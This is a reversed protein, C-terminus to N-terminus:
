PSPKLCVLAEENDASPNTGRPFAKQHRFHFDTIRQFGQAVAMAVVTKHTALAADVDDVLCLLAVFRSLSLRGWATKKVLPRWRRVITRHPVGRM